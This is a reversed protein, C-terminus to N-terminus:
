FAYFNCKGTFYSFKWLILFVIQANLPFQWFHTCEILICFCGFNVNQFILGTFPSNLFTSVMETFFLCM